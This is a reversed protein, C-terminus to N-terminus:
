ISGTFGNRRLAPVLGHAFTADCYVDTASERVQHHQLFVALQPDGLNGRRGGVVRRSDRIGQRLHEVVEGLHPGENMARRGLQISEQFPFTDAGCEQGGLTEAIHVGHSSTTAEAHVIQVVSVRLGQYGAVQGELHFLTQIPCAVDNLWEILVLEWLEELLEPFPVDLRDGHTEEVGVQIGGVLLADGLEKPLLRRIKEHGRGM